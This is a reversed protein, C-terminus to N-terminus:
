FEKAEGKIIRITTAIEGYTLVVFIALFFLFVVFLLTTIPNEIILELM